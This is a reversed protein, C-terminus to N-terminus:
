FRSVCFKRVAPDCSLSVEVGASSTLTSRKQRQNCDTVTVRELLCVGTSVCEINNLGLQAAEPIVRLTDRYKMSTDCQLDKYSAAYSVQLNKSDKIEVFYHSTEDLLARIM